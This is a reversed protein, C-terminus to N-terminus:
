DRSAGIAKVARLLQARYDAILEDVAEEIRSEEAGTVRLLGILEAIHQQHREAVEHLQPPIDIGYLTQLM